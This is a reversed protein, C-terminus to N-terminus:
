GKLGTGDACEGGQMTMPSGCPVTFDQSGWVRLPAPSWRWPSWLMVGELRPCGLLQTVATLVNGLSDECPLLVKSFCKLNTQATGPTWGGARCTKTVIGVWRLLFVHFHIASTFLFFFCCLQGGVWPWNRGDKVQACLHPSPGAFPRKLFFFVAFLLYCINLLWFFM